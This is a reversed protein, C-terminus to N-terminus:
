EPMRARLRVESICMDISSTATGRIVDFFQLKVYTGKRNVPLRLEQFSKDDIDIATRETSGGITVQVTQPQANLLWRDGYRDDKYKDYGGVISISTFEVEEKSRVWFTVSEGNGPGSVGEAWATDRKGDLLQSPSYMNDSTHRNSSATVNLDSLSLEREVYTRPPAPDSPVAGPGESNFASPESTSYRQGSRTAGSASNTTTLLAIALVLVGLLASAVAFYLISNNKPPLQSRGPYGPGELNRGPDGAPNRDQPRPLPEGAPAAPKTLAEVFRSCTDYRSAPNIQLAARLAYAASEGLDPRYSKPDPVQRTAKATLIQVTSLGDAESFPTRGTLMEYAMCALSYQDSAPGVKPGSGAQEPSMYNPTGLIMGAKTVPNAAPAELARAIGFDLIKPQLRGGKSALHINAPKIDRHIVGMSHAYDLAEAVPRLIEVVHDVKMPGVRGLHDALDEGALHEMFICGHSGSSRVNYISVIAPHNLSAALRAESLFREALGKDAAIEPRLVKVAENRQLLKNRALYVHAMGGSGIESILDHDDGLFPAPM